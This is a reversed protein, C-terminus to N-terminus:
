RGRARYWQAYARATFRLSDRQKNMQVTDRDFVTRTYSPTRRPVFTVQVLPTGQKFEHLGDPGNWRCPFNVELQYGDPGHNVLGAFPELVQERNLLPQYLALLDGSTRIFYPSPIKLVAGEVYGATQHESHQLVGDALFSGSTPDPKWWWRLTKGDDASEVSLDFALPVIIGEAMADRFPLCSRVTRNNREGMETGHVKKPMSLYELPLAKGAPLINPVVGDLRHTTGFQVSSKRRLHRRQGRREANM